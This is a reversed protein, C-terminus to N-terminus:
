VVATLRHALQHRGHAASYGVVVIGLATDLGGV